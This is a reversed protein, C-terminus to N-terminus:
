KQKGKKTVEEVRTWMAAQQDKSKYCHKLPHGRAQHTVSDNEPDCWWCHNDPSAM